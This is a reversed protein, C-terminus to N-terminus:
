ILEKTSTNDLIMILSRVVKAAVVSSVGSVDIDPSLEVIDAGIIRFSNLTQIINDFDHWFYGGPEPTGTGSVLSPDFWDLDITLYIPHNKFPELTKKLHTNPEGTKFNILQKKDKMIKFEEKTGSRIGIQFIKKSPMIELCRKIACAHSFKNSQYSERLDAHADLQVLILKPFKEILAQIAGVTISHEGGLLLPKLKKDILYRTALDVSQIVHKTDKLNLIASGADYYKIDELDKNVQPCYSELSYSANRIACPGFRTGPKYSTTGDYNAGFIGVKCDKPNNQSGMFISGDRDFLNNNSM